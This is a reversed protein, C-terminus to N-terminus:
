LAKLAEGLPRIEFGLSKLVRAITIALGADEHFVIVALRAGKDILGRLLVEPLHRVGMGGLCFRDGVKSWKNYSGMTRAYAYYKKAVDM